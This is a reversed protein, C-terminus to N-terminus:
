TPVPIARSFSSPCDEALQAAMEIGDGDPLGVAFIAVDPRTRRVLTLADACREAEGVIEGEAAVVAASLEARSRVHDDLVAVRWRLGRSVREGLPLSSALGSERSIL